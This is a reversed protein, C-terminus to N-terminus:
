IITQLSIFIDFVLRFQERYFPTIEVKGCRWYLCCPIDLPPFIFFALPFGSFYSVCSFLSSFSSSSSINAPSFTLSYSSLTFIRPFLFSLWLRLTASFSCTVRDFSRQVHLISSFCNTDFNLPGWVSGYNDFKHTSEWCRSIKIIMKWIINWM